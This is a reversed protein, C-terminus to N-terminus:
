DCNVVGDGFFKGFVCKKAFYQRSTSLANSIEKILIHSHPIYILAKSVVVQVLKTGLKHVHRIDVAM